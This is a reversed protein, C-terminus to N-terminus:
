PPSFTGAQIFCSTFATKLFGSKQGFSGAEPEGVDEGWSGPTSCCNLLAAAQFKEQNLELLGQAGLWSVPSPTPTGLVPLLEGLYLCLASAPGKQDTLPPFFLDGRSVWLVTCHCITVEPSPFRGPCRPPWGM